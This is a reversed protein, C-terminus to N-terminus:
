STVNRLMLHGEYFFQMEKLCFKLTKMRYDHILLALKSTQYISGQMQAATDNFSM